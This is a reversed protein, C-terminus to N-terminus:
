ITRFLIRLGEMQINDIAVDDYVLMPAIQLISSNKEPLDFPTPALLATDLGAAVESVHSLM